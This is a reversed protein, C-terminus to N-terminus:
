ISTHTLYLFKIQNNTQRNYGTDNTYLIKKNSQKNWGTHIVQIYTNAIGHNNQLAIFLKFKFKFQYWSVSTHLFLPLIVSSLGTSDYGRGISIAPVSRLTPDSASYAGERNNIPGHRRYHGRHMRFVDLENRCCCCEFRRVHMAMIAAQSSKQGPFNTNEGFIGNKPLVHRAALTWLTCTFMFYTPCNGYCGGPGVYSVCMVHGLAIPDAHDARPLCLMTFPILTTYVPIWSNSTIEAWSSGHWSTPRHVHAMKSCKLWTHSKAGTSGFCQSLDTLWTAWNSGAQTVIIELTATPRNGQPSPRCVFWTVACWDILAHKSIFLAILV